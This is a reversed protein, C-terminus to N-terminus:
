QTVATNEPTIRLLLCRTQGNHFLWPHYWDSSKRFAAHMCHPCSSEMCMFFIHQYFPSLQRLPPCSVQYSVSLAGIPTGYVALARNSAHTPSSCTRSCACAFTSLVRRTFIRANPVQARPQHDQQQLQQQPTRDVPAGCCLLHSSYCFWWSGHM